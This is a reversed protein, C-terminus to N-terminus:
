EGEKNKQGNLYAAVEARIDKPKDTDPPTEDKPKETLGVEPEKGVSRIKLWTLVDERVIDINGVCKFIIKSDYRKHVLEVGENLGLLEKIFTSLNTDDFTMRIEPIPM